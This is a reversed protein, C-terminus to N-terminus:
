RHRVSGNAAFSAGINAFCALGGVGGQSRGHILVKETRLGPQGLIFCGMGRGTDV